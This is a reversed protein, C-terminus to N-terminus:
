GRRAYAPFFGDSSPPTDPEPEGCAERVLSQYVDPNVVVRWTRFPQTVPSFGRKFDFLSDQRGGVGGGLHLYRNGRERAWQSVHFLRAKNPCQKLFREHTGSLFCQTIGAAETVIGASAVEGDIELISLHINEPAAAHLSRFLGPEFFYYPNAKVRHMTQMYIDLFADFREWSTDMYFRDGRRRSASVDQRHSTRMQALLQEDPLTVDIAVSDGHLVVEGFAELLPLDAELLPNMRVFLSVVGMERLHALLATMAQRVDEPCLHTGPRAPKILPPAYGYPSFADFHEPKGTQNGVPTPRLILPLLIQCTSSEARVALPQGGEHSACFVVYEPRHFTDHPVDDLWRSWAPDTPQLASVLPEPPNVSVHNV